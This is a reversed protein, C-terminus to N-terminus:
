PKEQLMEQAFEPYLKKLCEPCIGHTFQAESHESVYKEVQNWYGFNVRWQPRSSRTRSCVSNPRPKASSTAEPM